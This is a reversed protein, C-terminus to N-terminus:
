EFRMTASPKISSIIFSPLLLTLFSVVIIAVNLITITVPDISIPVYPMYYAEPDLKLVHFHQQILALGLGLVNGIIIAKFILKYTLYIFIRRVARKIGTICTKFVFDCRM